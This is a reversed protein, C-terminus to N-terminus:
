QIVDVAGSAGSNALPINKVDVLKPVVMPAVTHPSNIDLIPIWYTTKPPIRNKTKLETDMNRLFEM